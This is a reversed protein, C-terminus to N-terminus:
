NQVTILITFELFLKYYNCSKIWYKQISINKKRKEANKPCYKKLDYKPTM